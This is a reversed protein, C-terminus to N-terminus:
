IRATTMPPRAIPSASRVVPGSRDRYQAPHCIDHITGSFRQALKAEAPGRITRNAPSSLTQARRGPHRELCFGIQPVPILKKTESTLRAQRPHFLVSIKETRYHLSPASTRVRETQTLPPASVFSRRLVRM